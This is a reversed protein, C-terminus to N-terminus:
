NSTLIPQIIQQWIAYGKANMHLGDKIFLDKKLSRGQLMPYWVDIYTIRELQKELRQLKRNFRKYRGKLRWRSISPKAGILYIHASPLMEQIRAIIDKTDAIIRNPRKKAWLDNDGEYIFVKKPRYRLVLDDLFHALDSAQSGGFGTNIIQLDKSLTDVGAM